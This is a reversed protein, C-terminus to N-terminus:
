EFRLFTGYFKYIFYFGFYDSNMQFYHGGLIDEGMIQTVLSSIMGIGYSPQLQWNPQLQRVNSEMTGM